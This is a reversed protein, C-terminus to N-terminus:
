KIETLQEIFGGNCCASVHVKSSTHCSCACRYARVKYKKGNQEITQGDRNPRNFEMQNLEDFIIKGYDM